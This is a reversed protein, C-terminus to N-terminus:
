RAALPLQEVKEIAHGLTHGYNLVERGGHERLDAGVVDAKFRVAREVLEPLM